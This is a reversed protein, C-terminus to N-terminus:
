AVGFMPHPPGLTCVLAWSSAVASTRALPSLSPQCGAFDLYINSAFAVPGASPNCTLPSSSVSILPFGLNKASAVKHIPLGNVLIYFIFYSFFIPPSLLPLLAKLHLPILFETKPVNIKLRLYGYFM